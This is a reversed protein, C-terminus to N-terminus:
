TLRVRLRRVGDLYMRFTCGREKTDLAVAILKGESDRVSSYIDACKAPRITFASGVGVCSPSFRLLVPDWSPEEVSSESSVDQVILGMATHSLVKGCVTAPPAMSSLVDPGHCATLCCLALALVAIRTSRLLDFGHVDM